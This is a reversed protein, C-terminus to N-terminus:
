EYGYMYPNIMYKSIPYWIGRWDSMWELESVPLSDMDPQCLQEVPIMFNLPENPKTLDRKLWGTVILETKQYILYYQMTVINSPGTRYSLMKQTNVDIWFYDPNGFTLLVDGLTFDDTFFCFQRAVGDSFTVQGNGLASDLNFRMLGNQYRGILRGGKGEISAQADRWPTEELHVGFWCRMNDCTSALTKTLPPVTSFREGIAGFVVGTNLMLVVLLCKVLLRM